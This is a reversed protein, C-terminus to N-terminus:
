TKNELLCLREKIISITKDISKTITLHNRSSLEKVFDSQEGPIRYNFEWWREKPLLNATSLWVCYDRIVNIAVGEEDRITDPNDIRNLFVVVDENYNFLLCFDRPSNIGDIVFTKCHYNIAIIDKINNIFLDPNAKLRKSIFELKDKDYDEVSENPQQSRFTSNVWDVASIICSSSDTSICKAVTTKGSKAFGLIFVKMRRTDM